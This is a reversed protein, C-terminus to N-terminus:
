KRLLVGLRVLLLFFAIIDWLECLNGDFGREFVYSADDVVVIVDFPHLSLSVFLRLPANRGVSRAKEDLEQCFMSLPLICTM